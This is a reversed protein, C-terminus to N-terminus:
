GQSAHAQQQHDLIRRNGRMQGIPQRRALNQKLHAGAHRRGPVKQRRRGIRLRHGTIHHQDFRRQQCRKLFLAARQRAPHPHGPQHQRGPLFLPRPASFQRHHAQMRQQGRFQQPRQHARRTPFHLHHIHVNTTTARGRDLLGLTGAPQDQQDLIVLDILLHHQALEIQETMHRPHGAITPLSQAQPLLAAKTQHQGIAIHWLHIAKFEGPTQAREFGFAVPARRNHSHGGIRQM